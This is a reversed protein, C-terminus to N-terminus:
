LNARLKRLLCTVPWKMGQYPLRFAIYCSVRWITDECLPGLVHIVKQSEALAPPVIGGILPPPGM